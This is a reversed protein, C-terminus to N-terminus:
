EQESYTLMAQRYRQPSLGVLKTFATSFYNPNDFGVKDAIQTISDETMMLLTQAEGVRRRGVYQIPSYGVFEKFIHAAYYPSVYFRDALLALTINEAYHEDLYSQMHGALHHDEQPAAPRGQALQRVRLVLAALAAACLPAAGPHGQAAQRLILSFLTELEGSHPGAPLRFETWPDVVEDPALGSLRLGRVGVALTEAVGDGTLDVVAGARLILLDGQEATMRHAGALVRVRGQRVYHLVTVHPYVHLPRSMREGEMRLWAAFALVPAGGEQFCPQREEPLFCIM